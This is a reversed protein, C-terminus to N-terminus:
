DNEQPVDENTINFEEIADVDKTEEDASLMQNNSAEKKKIPQSMEPSPKSDSRKPPFSEKTHSKIPSSKELGLGEQGAVKQLSASLM